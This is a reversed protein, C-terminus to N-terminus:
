PREPRPLQLTQRGWIAIKGKQSLNNLNWNFDYQFILYNILSKLMIYWANHARLCWPAMLILWHVLRTAGRASVYGLPGQENQALHYLQMPFALIAGCQDRWLVRKSNMRFFLLQYFRFFWVNSCLVHRSLLKLLGQFWYNFNRLRGPLWWLALGFRGGSNLGPCCPVCDPGIPDLNGPGSVMGSGTILAGSMSRRSPGTGWPVEWSLALMSHPSAPGPESGFQQPRSQESALQTKKPLSLICIQQNLKSVWIIKGIM